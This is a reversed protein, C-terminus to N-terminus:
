CAAKYFHDFFEQLFLASCATQNISSESAVARNNRGSSSSSGSIIVMFFVHGFIELDILQRVKSVDRLHDLFRRGLIHAFLVILHENQQNIQKAKVKTDLGFWVSGLWALGFEIRSNALLSEFAAVNTSCFVAVKGLSEWFNEHAFQFCLQNIQKSKNTQRFM